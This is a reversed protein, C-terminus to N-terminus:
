SESCVAPLPPPLSGPLPPLPSPCASVGFGPLCVLAVGAVVVLVSIGLTLLLLALAVKGGARVCCVLRVLVACQNM